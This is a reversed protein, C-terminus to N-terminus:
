YLWDDHRVPLRNLEDRHEKWNPMHRNMLAVFNKDHTSELLHIMEHLVIYELCRRPKKVLETNLRIHGKLHNCSGWRTKMRQVFLRNVTVGLRVEWKAILSASEERILLRYWAEVVAERQVRDSGPRVHLVMHRPLLEVGQAQRGEVLRLLYRQGWVYHSERELYERATEREQAAFNRRQRKIWALKGIAFLRIAELTMREPATIRVRGTPPYVSLHVNRIGKRIVDVRIDGLDLQTIM